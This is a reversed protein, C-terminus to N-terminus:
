PHTGLLFRQSRIGAAVERVTDTPTQASTDLVHSELEGLDAFQDWLGVVPGRETLAGPATRRQARSLAVDRGPRLVVYHLPVDPHSRARDLYHDLVWPGAVGDVVTAFGGAAYTYAANAIVDLVVQNQQDAAPEFPAIGGSVISRWFDDTRLHVGRDYLRALETAISTKGAGPPGSVIIVSGTTGAM